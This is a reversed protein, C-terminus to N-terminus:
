LRDLSQLKMMDSFSARLKLRRRRFAEQGSIEGRTMARLTESDMRYSIEPRDLPVRLPEPPQAVGEVLRILFYEEFDSFYYQMEKNWDRFNHAVRPDGYRLRQEELLGLLEDRSMM